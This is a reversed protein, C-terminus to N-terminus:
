HMDASRSLVFTRNRLPQFGCSATPPSPLPPILLAPRRPDEDFPYGLGPRLYLATHTRRFFFATGGPGRQAPRGAPRAPCPGPSTAPGPRALPARLAQGARPASFHSYLPRRTRLSSGGPGGGRGARKEECRPRADAAAASLVMVISRGSPLEFACWRSTSGLFTFVDFLADRPACPPARRERRRGRGICPPAHHDEASATVAQADGPRRRRMKRERPPKNRGGPPAAPCLEATGVLGRGGLVCVASSSIFSKVSIYVKRRM